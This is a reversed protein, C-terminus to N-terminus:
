TSDPTGWLPCKSIDPSMQPQRIQIDPSLTSRPGPPPLGSCSGLVTCHGPRGGRPAVLGRRTLLASLSLSLHKRSLHATAPHTKGGTLVLAGRSECRRDGPHGWHPHTHCPGLTLGSGPDWTGEACSLETVVDVGKSLAFAWRLGTGPSWSAGRRAGATGGFWCLRGARGEEGRLLM